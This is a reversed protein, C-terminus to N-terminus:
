ISGTEMLEKVFTIRNAEKIKKSSLEISEQFAKVLQELEKLKEEFTKNEM